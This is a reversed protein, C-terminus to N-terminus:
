IVNGKEYLSIIKCIHGFNNSILVYEGNYLSKELYKNQEDSLNGNGKPCKLEILLNFNNANDCDKFIVLDPSGNEYGRKKSETRKQDTDLFYEDGVSVHRLETENRIFKAVAQQLENETTIIMTYEEEEKVVEKVKKELVNGKEYLSIIKCIYGFNNSTLIYQKKHLILTSKGNKRPSRLIILLNYKNNNCNDLFKLDLYIVSDEIQKHKLKTENRIFKVVEQQLQKEDTIIMTHIKKINYDAYVEEKRHKSKHKNLEKINTKIKIEKNEKTNLLTSRTSRINEKQQISTQYRTKYRTMNKFKFLFKFIM